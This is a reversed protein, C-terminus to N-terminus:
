EQWLEMIPKMAADGIAANPGTLPRSAGVVISDREAEGNCAALLGVALLAIVSFIILIKKSM